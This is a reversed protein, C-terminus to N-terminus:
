CAAEDALEKWEGRKPRYVHKDNGCDKATCSIKVKTLDPLEDM